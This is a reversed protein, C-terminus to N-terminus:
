PRGRKFVATRTLRDYFTQKGPSFILFTGLFSALGLALFPYVLLAVETM